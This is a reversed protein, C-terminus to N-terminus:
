DLEDEEVESGSEEIVQSMQRNNGFNLSHKNVSSKDIKDCSIKAKKNKTGKTMIKKKSKGM